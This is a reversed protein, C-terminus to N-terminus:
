EQEIERLCQKYSVVPRNLYTSRAFCYSLIQGMYFISILNEKEKAM